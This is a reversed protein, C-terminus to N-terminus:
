PNRYPAFDDWVKRIVKPDVERTDGGSPSKESQLVLTVSGCHPGFADPGFVYVGERIADTRSVRAEITFPHIPLVERDGCSARLRAFGPKRRRIPPLAMGQTSAAARAVRTWFGETLRPTVRVTLVPRVDAFYGAWEGFDTLLREREWAQEPSVGGGTHGRAAWRQAALALAPTIFTVDFDRSSVQYAAVDPARDGSVVVSGAPFPREPEVPLPAGSPPDTEGMAKEAAAVAACADALGVVRTTWPTAEGTRGPDAALGVVDGAATFVPGGPSGAELRFDATVGAPSVSAAGVTLDKTGRLPVGITFLEQGDAIAPAAPAPCGLRVSQVSAAVAPDIRLVGVDRAPDAALVQGAVKLSSTIQVAVSTADGLASRSTVVLGRADAVFGSTRSMPTWIAVVGDQWRPMLFSPSTAPATAPAASGAPAAEVEANAATWALSADAGAKVEVFQTWQYLRGEFAVPAESEVTYLGPRLRIEVRGDPDTEVRRPADSPPEDSVLLGHRPVPTPRGAADVLTVTVRLVSRPQAFAWPSAAVLALGALGLARRMGLM